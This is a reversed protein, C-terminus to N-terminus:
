RRAPAGYILLWGTYAAIAALGLGIPVNWAALSLGLIKLAPQDCRVVNQTELSKLLDNGSAALDAGGTCTSPGEWWRWEVGAHYLGFGANALLGLGLLAVFGAALAPRGASMAASAAIALVIGAYYAYREKLCLECPAYGGLFELGLAIAMVGGCAVLLLLILQEPKRLGSQIVELM